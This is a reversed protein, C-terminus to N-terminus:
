DDDREPVTVTIWVPRSGSCSRRANAPDGQFVPDQEFPDVGSRGTWENFHQPQLLIHDFTTPADIATPTQDSIAEVMGQIGLLPELEPDGVNRRLHGLLLVDQDSADSQQVSRFYDAMAKLEAAQLASATPSPRLQGWSVDKGATVQVILATFDFRGDLTVFSCAMPPREFPVRYPVGPVTLQKRPLVRPRGRVEVRDSRYVLAYFERTAARRGLRKATRVKNWQGGLISLENVLKALMRDDRIGGLAVCDMPWLVRAM